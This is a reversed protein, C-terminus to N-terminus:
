ALARLRELAAALEEASLFTRLTRELEPFLKPLDRRTLSAPDLSVRACALAVARPAFLPSLGSAEAVRRALENGGDVQM